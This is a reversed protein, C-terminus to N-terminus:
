SREPVAITVINSRWGKGDWDDCTIVVLRGAGTQSFIKEANRAVQDKSLVDVSQVRYTLTSDSREVKIADGRSLDGIFDFVGGGNNHVTHGVVVASGHSGGPAAGESWWGVVSPIEHPSSYGTRMARSPCSPPTWASGRSACGIRTRERSASLKVRQRSPPAETAEPSATTAAPDRSTPVASTPAPTPTSTSGVVTVDDNDSGAIVALLALGAIFLALGRLVRSAPRSTLDPTMCSAAGRM